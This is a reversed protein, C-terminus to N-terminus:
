KKNYHKKIYEMVTMKGDAVKMLDADESAMNSLYKNSSKSLKDDKIGKAMIASNITSLGSGGAAGLAGGVAAGKLAGKIGGSSAGIAAGLAGGAVGGVQAGRKANHKIFSNWKNTDVAEETIRRGEKSRLHKNIWLNIEDSTNLDIDKKKDSFDKRKLIM